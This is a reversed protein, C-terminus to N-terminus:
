AGVVLGRAPQRSALIGDVIAMLEQTRHACTHRKRITSLGHAALSEALAEDAMVARLHHTMEEGTRALAIRAEVHESAFVDELHKRVNERDGAGSSANIIVAFRSATVRPRPSAPLFFTEGRRRTVADGRRVVERM